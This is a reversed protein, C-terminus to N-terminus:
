IKREISWTTKELDDKLIIGIKELSDRIRDSVDFNKQKREENRIQVLRNLIENADSLNTVGFENAIIQLEKKQKSTLEKDDENDM